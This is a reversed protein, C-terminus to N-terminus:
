LFLIVASLVFFTALPWLSSKKEFEVFVLKFERYSKLTPYWAYFLIYGLFLAMAFGLSGARPVFILAFLICLGATVGNAVHSVVHNGTMYLQIHMASFREVFFTAGILITMFSSPYSIEPKLWGLIQPVLIGALGYGVSYAWLSNRMARASVELLEAIQRRARLSSLLPIKSYFPAMSFQNVM